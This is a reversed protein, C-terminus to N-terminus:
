EAKVGAQIIVKRWQEYDKRILEHLQAPTGGGDPFVGSAHLTKVV